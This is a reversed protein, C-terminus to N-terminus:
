AGNLVGADKLFKRMMEFTIYGYKGFNDNQIIDDWEKKRKTYAQYLLNIFEKNKTSDNCSCEETYDVDFFLNCFSTAKKDSYKYSYQEQIGCAKALSINIKNRKLVKLDKGIQVTIFLKSNISKMLDCYDKFNPPIKEDQYYWADDFFYWDFNLEEILANKAKLEEKYKEYDKKDEGEYWYAFIIEDHKKEDRLLDLFHSTNKEDVLCELEKIRNHRAQLWNAFLINWSVEDNIDPINKAKEWLSEYWQNALQVDDEISGAEILGKGMGNPTFNASTTLVKDNFIYVKAHIKKMYRISLRKDKSLERITKPNCATNELDCIISIHKLQPNKAFIDEPNWSGSSIYPSILKLNDSCELFQVFQGGIKDRKEIEDFILMRKEKIVKKKKFRYENEKLFCSFTSWTPISKHEM